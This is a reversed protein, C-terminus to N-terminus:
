RQGVAAGPALLERLPRDPELGVEGALRRFAAIFARVGAPDHIRADFDVRCRSTEYFRDVAFSFGWPMAEFVREGPSIELGAFRLPPLRESVGFIARIELPTIGERRLEDCLREYPIESRASTEVVTARM